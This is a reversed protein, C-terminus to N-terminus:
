AIVSQWLLIPLIINCGTIDGHERLFVPNKTGGGCAFVTDIRYGAANMSDIIHRTGHAVAQITALYLLALSHGQQRHDVQFLLAAELRQPMGLAAQRRRHHDVYGFRVPGVVLVVAITLYALVSM